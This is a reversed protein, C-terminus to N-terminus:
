KSDGGKNIHFLNKLTDPLLDPNIKSINEIISVIETSVAYLAIIPLTKVGLNLGIYAGQTDILIALVYCAIFGIKKFLGDRMKSSQLDKAKVAAIIGTLMDFIHFGVAVLVTYVM